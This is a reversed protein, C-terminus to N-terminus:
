PSLFKVSVRPSIGVNLFNRWSLWTGWLGKLNELPQYLAIKVCTASVIKRTQSKRDKNKEGREGLFNRTSSVSLIPPSKPRNPRGWPTQLDVETKTKTDSILTSLAEFLKLRFNSVM